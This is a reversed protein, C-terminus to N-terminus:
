LTEAQGAGGNHRIAGDYRRVANYLHGYAAQVVLTDAASPAADTGLQMALSAALDSETAMDVADALAPAVAIPFDVGDDPEFPWADVVAPERLVLARLQTGAARLREIVARVSATFAASSGGSFVDQSYEVDFLGYRLVSGPGHQITADHDWSADYMPVVDQAQTVDRVTAAQGTYTLLAAEIAVNNCRPRLVEAVIRPGYVSDPEGVERAVGYYGGIEDLWAGEATKLSLQKLAEPIQAEAEGLELAMAEMYAWVLSTYGYLHDGNSEAPDGNGDILCRASLNALDPDALYHVEYGTRAAIENALGAITYQTLDLDLPTAPATVGSTTLRADAVKWRMPGTTSDFRLALFRAPDLDFVRHLRRLLKQTLRM